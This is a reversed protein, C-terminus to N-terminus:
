SREAPATISPLAVTFTTGGPGSAVNITGGLRHVSDAVLALGLGYRRRGDELDQAGRSRRVFLSDRVEPDIGSGTDMVELVVDAKRGRRQATVSLIVTGGAPTHRLANDVLSVLCRRLASEPGAVRLASTDPCSLTLEVGAVEAASACTAVVGGAVAAPDCPSHEAPGEGPEAAALLDELVDGLREIDARLATLEQQAASDELKREALQVRTSLVALPTRLEHSADAVFRRQHALSTVLGRVNRRGIFTGLTAACVLAFGGALALATGLRRSERHDANLSLAAQVIRRGSSTRLVSTRVLFDGDHLHVKDQLTSGVPAAALSALMSRLPIGKPAGPSTSTRGGALITLWIGAPPDDVDDARTIAQEVLIRDDRHQSTLVVLLVLGASLAFSLAV